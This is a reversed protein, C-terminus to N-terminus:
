TFTGLQCCCIKLHLAECVATMELKSMGLDAAINWLSLCAIRNDEVKKMIKDKLEGPVTEAPAVINREGERHGFLGLQCRNILIGMLDVTKGVEAPTIDLETSIEHADSCSIKMDRSRTKILEAVRPDTSSSEPHKAGYRGADKHSM